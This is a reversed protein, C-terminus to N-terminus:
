VDVVCGLSGYSISSVIEDLGHEVCLCACLKRMQELTDLREVSRRRCVYWPLVRCKQLHLGEPAINDFDDRVLLSRLWDVIHSM